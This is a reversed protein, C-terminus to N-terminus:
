QYGFGFVGISFNQIGSLTNTLDIGVRYMGTVPVALNGSVYSYTGSNFTFNQFVTKNNSLDRYYLDGSLPGVSGLTVGQGSSTCGLAFGTVNFTRSVFAEALNLGTTVPNLFFSLNVFNGTITGSNIFYGINGQQAILTWGGTLTGPSVGSIPSSGTYGYSSGSNFTSYGYQYISNNNYTGQWVWTGTPGTVGTYYLAWQGFGTGQPQNGNTSVATSNSIYSANYPTSYVIDLNNYLTGLQWIGRVNPTPATPGQPGQLAFWGSGSNVPMATFNYIYGTDPIASQFAVNFGSTTIFYPISNTYVITGLGTYELSGVVTPIASFGSTFMYTLGTTGSALPTQASYLPTVNQGQMGSIYFIPGCQIVQVTGASQLYVLGSAGSTGNISLVGAFGTVQGMTTGLANLQSLQPVQNSVTAIPVTPSNLFNYNGTLSFNGTTTVVNPPSSADVYSKTALDTPNVPTGLSNPISVFSKVGSILQNSTLLVANAVTVNNLGTQLVGSVIQLYSLNVTDYISQPVGMVRLQGSFSKYGGLNQENGTTTIFNALNIGTIGSGVFNSLFLYNIASGTDNPIYPVDPSVLYILQSAINQSGGSAYVVNPGLWGSGAVYAQLSGSFNAGSFSSLIFQSLSTPDIQKAQILPM